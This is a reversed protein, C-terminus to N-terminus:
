SLCRGHLKSDQLRVGHALLPHRAETFIRVHEHAQEALLIGRHLERDEVHHEALIRRIDFLDVGIEHRAALEADVLVQGPNVAQEIEQAFQVFPPLLHNADAEAVLGNGLRQASSRLLCAGTPADTDMPVAEGRPRGPEVVSLGLERYEDTVLVLHRAVRAAGLHEGAAFEAGVGHALDAVVDEGELPM